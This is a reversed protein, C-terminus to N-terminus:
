RRNMFAVKGAAYDKKLGTGLMQGSDGIKKVAGELDGKKAAEIGGRIGKEAVRGKKVASAVLDAGSGVLGVAKGLAPNVMGAYPAAAKAVRSVQQAVKEVSPLAKSIGEGVSTATKAAKNGFKIADKGLKQGFRSFNSFSKSFFGM